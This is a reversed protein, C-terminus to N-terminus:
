PRAESMQRVIEASAQAIDGANLIPRGVVLYDSGAEIAWRPTAIRAQDDLTDDKTEPRIGPTVILFNEGGVHRVFKTELASCVVGDLGCDKVFGALKNVLESPHMPIGLERIDTENLSTLVTVALLRTSGDVPVAKRAAELM